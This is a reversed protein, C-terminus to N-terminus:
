RLAQGCGYLALSAANALASAAIADAMPVRLWRAYIAAEVACAGLEVAALPAGYVVALAFALPHTALQAAIVVAVRARPVVLRVVVLEVICTAVFAALWETLV